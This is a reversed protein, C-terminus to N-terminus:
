DNLHLRILSVGSSKCHKYIEDSSLEVFQLFKKNSYGVVIPYGFHFQDINKLIKASDKMEKGFGLGPDIAIQEKKIGINILESVKDLIEDKVQNVVDKFQKKGHLSISEQNRHVLIINANTNLAIDIMEQSLFGGVDNIISFNNDLAIKAINANMTDISYLFDNSKNILFSYLRDQEEVLSVEHFGPKTSVCGIDLIKINNKKANEFKKFLMIDNGLVGDGSFSDQTVNIIGM